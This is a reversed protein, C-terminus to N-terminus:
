IKEIVTGIAGERILYAQAEKDACIELATRRGIGPIFVRPMLPKYVEGEFVFHVKGAKKRRAELAAKEEAAKKDQAAKLEAEFKQEAAIQEPAKQAPTEM